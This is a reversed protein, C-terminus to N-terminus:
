IKGSQLWNFIDNLNSTELREHEEGDGPSMIRTTVGRLALGKEMRDRIGDVHSLFCWESPHPIISQRHIQCCLGESSIAFFRLSSKSHWFVWNVARRRITNNSPITYLESTNCREEELVFGGTKIFDGLFSLNAELTTKWRLYSFSHSWNRSM